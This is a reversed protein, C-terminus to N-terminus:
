VKKERLNKGKIFAIQMAQQIEKSNRSTILSEEGHYGALFALDIDCVVTANSEIQKIKEITRSDEHNYSYAGIEGYSNKHIVIIGLSRSMIQGAPSLTWQLDSAYEIWFNSM